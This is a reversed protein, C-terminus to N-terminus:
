AVGGLSAFIKSETPYFRMRIPVTRLAPAMLIGVPYGEALIAMTATITAPATAAPSNPLATLILTASNVSDLTGIVKTISLYTTGYPWFVARAGAANYEMLTFQCFVAAGRFVADQPTEAMNDGTIIQKFFTHEITVGELIQGVAAGAYTATYQGAIFAM